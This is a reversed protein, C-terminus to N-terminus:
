KQRKDIRRSLYNGASQVMQVIIILLIITLFMLDEQYRYYGYRIAIDGLGGGGVVGAMASYGILTIITISVGLILSPTAEPVMVKSIIQWPSAGMALAAEILGKDVEKVSAEVMRAVFPIAGIALPVVSASPGISTGVVLRTFPIVAILLIIFPISRMVNVIGGLVSNLRHRPLVHQRDTIVLIIGLPMGFLYALFTSLFTMYLTVLTGSGLLDCYEVVKAVDIM